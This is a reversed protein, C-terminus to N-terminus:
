YLYPLRTINTLAHKNFIMHNSARSDIIWLDVKSEFLKCSPKDFDISSTGVVVGAFNASGTTINSNSSSGGVHVVQFHQLLTM